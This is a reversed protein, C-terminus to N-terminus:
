LVCEQLIIEQEREAIGAMNLLLISAHFDQLVATISEGTFVEVVVKKKLFRYETEIGWRKDYLERLDETSFSGPLNTVLKEIKGDALEIVAVRFQLSRHRRAVTVTQDKENAENVEKLFNSSVRVVFNQNNKV